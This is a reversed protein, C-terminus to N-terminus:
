FVTINHASIPAAKSGLHLVAGAHHGHVAPSQHLLQQLWHHAAHGVGGWRHQLVLLILEVGGGDGHRLVEVDEVVEAFQGGGILDPSSVLVHGWQGVRLEWLGESSHSRSAYTSASLWWSSSSSIDERCASSCLTQMKALKSIGQGCCQLTNTFFTTKTSTGTHTLSLTHTHHPVLPPHPPVPPTPPIIQKVHNIWLLKSSDVLM